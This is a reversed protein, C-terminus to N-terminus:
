RTYFTKNGVGLILFGNIDYDENPQKIELAEINGIFNPIVTYCWGGLDSLLTPNYKLVEDLYFVGFSGSDVGFSGLVTEKKQEIQLKNKADATNDKEIKEVLDIIKGVHEELELQSLIKDVGIVSWSGDGYGTPNWIYKTFGLSPNITNETFDFGSDEGWDSDKAFYGPDTIIITGNFEM